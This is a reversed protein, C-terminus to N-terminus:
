VDSRFVAACLWALFVCMQRALCRVNEPREIPRRRGGQAVFKGTEDVSRRRADAKERKPKKPGRKECCKATGKNRKMEGTKRDKSKGDRTRM